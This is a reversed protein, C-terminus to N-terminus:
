NLGFSSKLEKVLGPARASGRLYENLLSELFDNWIRMRVEKVTLHEQFNLNMLYAHGIRYDSGLLKENSIKQNLRALDDALVAWQPGKEKILHCRLVDIDPEIEEWRFRRRLAFDLSDVSRDLNNMTGILFVNHPVFFEFGQGKPLMGTEADNLAAYQTQISHDSGRYELALMLEGFVRSLEARNIEDIILFYPPVAESVLTEPAHQFVQKWHEGAFEGTHAALKGVTISKWTLHPLLKAVDCEWKGAEICLRKFIGNQLCLRSQGDVLKPRLGEIFDEYSYSPHFQVTLLHNSFDMKKEADFKRQWIRFQLNSDLKAKYTKGTGPAGHFVVQPKLRFPDPRNKYLEWVFVSLHHEDTEGSKLEEAFYTSFESILHLNRGRWDFPAVVPQGILKQDLLWDYIENFIAESCTTSVSTTCAALVRNWRLPHNGVGVKSWAGRFVNFNAESEPDRTLNELASYFQADGILAKFEADSLWSMGTDSIGNSDSRILNEAFSMFPDPSSEYRELGAYSAKDQLKLGGLLADRVHKTEGSIRRYSTLWNSVDERGEHILQSYYRKLIPM